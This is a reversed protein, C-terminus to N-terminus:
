KKVCDEGFKTSIITSLMKKVDVVQARIVFRSFNEEPDVEEFIVRFEDEGFIDLAEEM